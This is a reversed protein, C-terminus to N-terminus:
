EIIHKCHTCKMVKVKRKNKVILFYVLSGLLSLFLALCIMIIWDTSTLQIKDAFVITDDYGCYECHNYTQHYGSKVQNGCNSCITTNEKIESNCHPCYM